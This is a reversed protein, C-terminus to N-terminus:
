TWLIGQQDTYTAGVQYVAGCPGVNPPGWTQGHQYSDALAGLRMPTAGEIANVLCQASSLVSTSDVVADGLVSSRATVRAGRSLVVSVGIRVGKIEINEVYLSAVDVRAGIVELGTNAPAQIEGGLVSVPAIGGSGDISVGVNDSESSHNVLTLGGMAGVVHASASLRTGYSSCYSTYCNEMLAVLLRAGAQAATGDFLVGTACQTITCDRMVFNQARNVHVGIRDPKLQGDIALDKLRVFTPSPNTSQDGLVIMDKDAGYPVLHARKDAGQDSGSDGVIEFSARTGASPPMTLNSIAYDGAPVYIKGKVSLAAQFAPTDNVTGDGRAGFWRVNVPGSYLRTWGRVVTGNNDNAIDVPNFLFVGGGGDYPAYHGLVFAFGVGGPTTRLTDIDPGIL